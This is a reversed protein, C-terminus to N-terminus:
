EQSAKEASHRAFHVWIMKVTKLQGSSALLPKSLIRLMTLAKAIGAGMAMMAVMTAVTMEMTRSLTAEAEVEMAETGLTVVKGMTVLTVLLSWTVDSLNLYETIIRLYVHIKCKETMVLM